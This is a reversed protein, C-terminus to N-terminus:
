LDFNTGKANNSNKINGINSINHNLAKILGVPGTMMVDGGPASYYYDLNTNEIFKRNPGTVIVKEITKIPKIAHAGHGHDNYVEEHSITGNALKNVFYEIKEGTLTHSHHEFVGNIKGNEIAAAMTHGNGIDMVIYSNFNNVYKDSCAGIISAFKSDMILTGTHTSNKLSENSPMNLSKNPSRNLSENLVKNSNSDFYSNLTNVVANMRSYYNPINLNSLSDGYFAFEEPIIPYNLKEKIKSFRFDRDGMNDDFGHDQVAVAVYDFNAESDFKHIVEMITILDVDMLKIIDYDDMNINSNINTNDTNNNVNHSNNYSNNSIINIGLSKVKDLDDKITRAAHEDMAVSYGKNIHEMIARKIYGGGMIEGTFFLNNNSNQIKQAMIRTPSPLVLKISNELQSDSDYLLIDQTGAGIDIALIKM